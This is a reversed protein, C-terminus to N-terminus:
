SVFFVIDSALKAFISLLHEINYGKGWPLRM